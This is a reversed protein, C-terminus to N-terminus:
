RFDLDLQLGLRVALSMFTLPSSVVAFRAVSAASISILNKGLLFLELVEQPHHPM